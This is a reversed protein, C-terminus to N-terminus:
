GQAQRGEYGTVATESRNWVRVVRSRRGTSRFFATKDVVGESGTACVDRPCDSPTQEQRYHWGWAEKLLVCSPSVLPVSATLSSFPHLTTPSLM